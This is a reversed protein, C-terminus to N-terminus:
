SAPPLYQRHYRHGLNTLIEYGITDMAEAADQLPLTPGILDFVTGPTLPRNGLATINVALSDMSVRGIIPLRTEPEDALVVAGRGGSIRLWGDGYGTSLTAVRTPESAIFRASYGVATGEPITRDQILRAQLRIVDRMPNPQTPTPNIGYLAAGPRVLDFHYPPGLFIGSSAALSSLTHPLRQKLTRFQELQAHNAPHPPEDACALHSMTLVPRLGAFSEASQALATLDSENLGFRSMGSDIQLACPLARDLMRATSRWAAIQHPSNLVPLLGAQAIDEETGPMPGHLVFIAADRPILPRLTLGEEAHAVFFDRCGANYLVPAVQAMGLGYADAKVAAAVRVSPGVLHRLRGYNEAIAGLDITLWGGALPKSPTM